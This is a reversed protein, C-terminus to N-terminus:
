ASGWLSPIMEELVRRAASREDPDGAELGGGVGATGEQAPGSLAFTVGQTSFYITQDRGQIYYAVQADLQGQNEVFYLPLQGFSRELGVSSPRSIAAPGFPTEAVSLSSRVDPRLAPAARVGIAPCSLAAMGVILWFRLLCRPVGAM